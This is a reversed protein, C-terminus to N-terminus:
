ASGLVTNGVKLRFDRRILLPCLASFLPEMADVGFNLISKQPMTTLLSARWLSRLSCIPALTSSDGLPALHPDALGFGRPLLFM